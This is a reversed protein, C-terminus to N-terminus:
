VSKIAKILSVIVGRKSAFTSKFLDPFWISILYLTSPVKFIENAWTLHTFVTESERTWVLQYQDISNLREDLDRTFRRTSQSYAM